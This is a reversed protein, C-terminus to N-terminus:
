KDSIGFLQYLMKTEAETLEHDYVVYDLKDKGSYQITEPTYRQKLQLMERLWNRPSGDFADRFDKCQFVYEKGSDTTLNVCVSFRGSAFKAASHYYTQFEVCDIEGSQFERVKSDFMNYQGISGDAYLCDRGYLSWPYPIWSILVLFMVVAILRRKRKKANESVWVYPKNKMFIPYIKPWAPPGYKFNRLGFIPHREEYPALWLAFLLIFSFFWTFSSWLISAHEVSVVVMEDAFAIVPNLYYSLLLPGFSFIIILLFIMWYILQDLLSLKPMKHIKKNAKKVM